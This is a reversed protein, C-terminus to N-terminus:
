TSCSCLLTTAAGCHDSYNTTSNLLRTPSEAPLTYYCTAAQLYRCPAAAQYCCSLLRCLHGVVGSTGLNIWLSWHVTLAGFHVGQLPASLGPWDPVPHHIWYCCAPWDLLSPPTGPLLLVLSCCRWTLKM